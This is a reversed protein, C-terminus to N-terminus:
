KLNTTDPPKENVIKHVDRISLQDPGFIGGAVFKAAEQPVSKCDGDGSAGLVNENAQNM